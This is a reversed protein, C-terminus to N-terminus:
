DERERKSLKNSFLNNILLNVLYVNSSFDTTSADAPKKSVTSKGHLILEYRAYPSRYLNWTGWNSISCSM